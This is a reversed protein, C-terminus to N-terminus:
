GAEGVKIAGHRGRETVEEADRGEAFRMAAPHAHHDVPARWAQLERDLFDLAIEVPAPGTLAADGCRAILRVPGLNEGAQELPLREARRDGDQHAVGVRARARVLVELVGEPGRV